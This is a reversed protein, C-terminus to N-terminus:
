RTLQEIALKELRRVRERSLGIRDGVERQTMPAYPDLGFRMRIVEAKCKDLRALRQFIRDLDNSEDLLDAVDRGREDMLRDVVSGDEDSPVSAKMM